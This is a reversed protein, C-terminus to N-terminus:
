WAKLAMAVGTGIVVKRGRNSVSEILIPTSVRQETVMDPFFSYKLSKCAESPAVITPMAPPNTACPMPVKQKSRSSEVPM